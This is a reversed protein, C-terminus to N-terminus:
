PAIHIIENLGQLLESLHTSKEERTKCTFFNLHLTLVAVVAAQSGLDLIWVWLETTELILLGM